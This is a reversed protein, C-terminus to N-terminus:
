PVNMGYGMAIGSSYAGQANAQNAAYDHNSGNYIGWYTADYANADVSAVCHIFAATTMQFPPCSPALLSNTNDLNRIRISYIRYWESNTDKLQNEWYLFSFKLVSLANITAKRVDSSIVESSIIEEEITKAKIMFEAATNSKYFEDMIRSNYEGCFKRKYTSTKLELYKEYYNANSKDGFDNKLCSQIVKFAFDPRMNEINGSLALKDLLANHIEGSSILKNSIIDENQNNEKACGFYTITTFLMVAAFFLTKKM